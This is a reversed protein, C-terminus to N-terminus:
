PTWQQFSQQAYQASVQLFIQAYYSYVDGTATYSQQAFQAAQTAFQQAQNWLDRNNTQIAVSMYYHAYFSLVLSNLANGDPTTLDTNTYSIYAFQFGVVAYLRAAEDFGSRAYCPEAAFGFLLAAVLLKKKM